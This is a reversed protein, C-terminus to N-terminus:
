AADGRLISATIDALRAYDELESYAFASFRLWLAGELAHVPADTGAQLLRRRIDQAQAASPDPVPLRVVGMAATLDGTAGPRTNLRDALLDAAQTALLRNRVRLASGGLRNHFSIAETVALFRSPDTTGTWDFEALYGQEFGHSITVPHLGTQRAPAAHLFACGKPACLWKHCNGVYWDAGIATLDLDLQGPAHAGDILVSVGTQQCAAVIRAVPLVLASGSTVHDIVALRTRPTIANIVAALLADETPDPFIVRAVTIRAGAQRTVHRVANRIARYAHSLILVEDDPNLAIARLVANCGTTANDLFVIDRGDAGVFRGLDDAAGRLATPLVTAMFRTPQREMRDQWDRQAATVARPTAGFSGHNVTLFDPDLNWEGRVAQGLTPTALPLDQNPPPGPPPHRAVDGLAGPNAVLPRKQHTEDPQIM